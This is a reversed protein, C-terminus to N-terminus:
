ARTALTIFPSIKDSGKFPTIAEEWDPQGNFRYTLKFATEDYLFRVHISSQWNAEGKDIATYQQLDTLVLDGETGLAECYESPLIPIGFLTGFPAGAVNGAPIFVPQNGITMTVLQPLCAVNYYWVATRYSSAPLRALMKAVNAVQITAAAQGAEKAVVVLAPSKMFGLPKGAGDERFIANEAVFTLERRFCREAEVALAAADQLIEETAYYIGMLKELLTQQRRMKPRKGEVTSAESAWYVQVGGYRSGTARSREDLVNRILGNANEGIPTKNVRSLVDGETWMKTVLGQTIDQQILWGGDSPVGASSGSPTAAQIGAAEIVGYLRKDVGRGTDAMRIALLQEGLSAFPKQTERDAGVQISPAGAARGRIEQLVLGQVEEVKKGEDIWATAKAADIGHEACMGRIQRAREREAAIAAQVDVAPGAGQPPAMTKESMAHERAEPAPQTAPNEAEAEAAAGGADQGTKEDETEPNGETYGCDPCEWDGDEGTKMSGGCEPCDRREPDEDDAEAAIPVLYPKAADTRDEAAPAAALKARAAEVASAVMERVATAAVLRGEEAARALEARVEATAARRVDPDAVVALRNGTIAEPDGEVLAAARDPIGASIVTTARKRGGGKGSRLGDIVEELTAVRDALGEKVARKASLCRGEGFGNRVASEKVGRGKAVAAVFLDYYEEVEAQLAAEAEEGLPEYPHGEAKYRGAKIVTHKIGAKEAAASVDTHIMFVGISGAEASPSVVVEDAQSGLYYAASAMQFNSVAHIPKTGRARRIRQAMEEIGSVSGGPSDVDLVIAAVDDNQVAADFNAALQQVSTGGSYATVINARPVITGYIPIVAIQGLTRTAGPRSAGFRERAEEESLREGARHAELFGLIEELKAETIAWPTRLLARIARDAHTM